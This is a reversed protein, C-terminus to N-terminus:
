NGNEAEYERERGCAICVILVVFLRFILSLVPFVIKLIFQVIIGDDINIKRGCNKNAAAATPGFHIKSRGRFNAPSDGRM